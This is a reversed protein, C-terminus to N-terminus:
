RRRPAGILVAVPLASRPAFPNRWLGGHNAGQSLLELPHELPVAPNAAAKPNRLDHVLLAAMLVRATTPEFVEVGFRHAGDYAARLVRNKTVSRTRSPPAVNISSVHGDDRARRARWRHLRKALLYNPGQQQVLCDGVGFRRGDATVVVTDYNPSFLRGRTLAGLGRRLAPREAFRRRSDAVAEEPVAFVDTPTALVAFSVDERGRSLHDGIADVAVSVRVNDGGDAYVYNGLTLPGEFGSLWTGVEPMETVLDAGALRALEDDDLDRAATRVPVHTRGTGARVAAIVRGWLSADPVDVVALEAGWAALPELPGMEAGAGLIVILLDSLDLWDRNDAVLRVAEAFSPEVTGAEVWRAVQRHLTDGRLLEGRYPVALGESAPRGRGDVTVTDFRPEAYREFAASLSATEDGRVFEFREHISSLGAEPVAEPSSARLEAELLHRVASLYTKYWDTAAEIEDALQGDTGRAADAFVAQGTATTSRRGEVIPFVVGQDENASVTVM